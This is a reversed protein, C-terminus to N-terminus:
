GAVEKLRRACEETTIGLYQALLNIQINYSYRKRYICAGIPLRGQQMAVRVWQASEGIIKGAEEPRIKIHNIHQSQTM